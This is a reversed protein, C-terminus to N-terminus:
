PVSPSSPRVPSGPPERCSGCVLWSGFGDRHLAYDVAPELSIAYSQLTQAADEVPLCHLAFVHERVPASFAVGAHFHFELETM